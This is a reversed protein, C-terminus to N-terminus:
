PGATLDDVGLADATGAESGVGIACCGMSRPDQVDPTMTKAVPRSLSKSGASFESGSARSPRHARGTRILSPDNGANTRRSTPSGYAAPMVASM